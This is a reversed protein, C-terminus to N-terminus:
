RYKQREKPVYWRWYKVGLKYIEVNEFRRDVLRFTPRTFLFTCPQEVHLLRHLRHCLTNREFDDLTRRIEEIIGDAESNRFGTYNSGGDIQSSHWLKYPDELLSTSFGMLVADFQGEGVRNILVSWEMPELIIEIGVKASEDQIFEALRRYLVNDASYLFKFRFAAEDKERIGDGDNDVWGADGLLKKAAEVDYSWPAVSSDYGPGDVYFPGTVVLGFGALLREVIRTRDIIHTMALRVRRDEFFRSRNNWGIFYFPTGPVRYSLCMFDKKFQGDAALDFFQDPEPIIMDIRHARLSQVAATPNNIFKYVIKELSAKQGWYTENRRLVIEKGREWKEFVFPGSGVPESVRNNFEEPNDFEYIHKPLVGIGWFSLNEVAKFYPGKLKFCVTLDDIKEASEVDVYLSALDGADIGPNTITKYTFIIDDATVALGDSFHIDSRLRFTIQLGDDSIRYSEALFPKLKLENYDYFLLPEFIYPFTLWRAYGDVSVPNLSKPEVRFGWVLWGGEDVFNEILEKEKEFNGSVGAVSERNELDEALRNVGDYFRDNKVMSHIQLLFILSIFLFLFFVVGRTRGHM